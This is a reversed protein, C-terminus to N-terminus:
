RAGTHGTNMQSLLNFFFFVGVQQIDGWVFPKWWQKWAFRLGPEHEPNLLQTWVPEGCTVQARTQGPKASVEFPNGQLKVQRAQMLGLLAFSPRGEM